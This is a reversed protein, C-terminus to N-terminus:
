LQKTLTKDSLSKLRKRTEPEKVIMQAELDSVQLRFITLIVGHHIDDELFRQLLEPDVDEVGVGGGQCHTWM